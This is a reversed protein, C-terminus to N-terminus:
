SSPSCALPFLTGDIFGVCNPFCHRNQIRQSIERREDEDPWTIARDRLNRIALMARNQYLTGTGRGIRYIQWLDLNSAGTGETGLYKLLVMLQFAPPNQDPGKKTTKTFVPHQQIMGLITDFSQRTLRYKQRFESETLWPSVNDDHYVMDPDRVNSSSGLFDDGFTPKYNRYKQPRKFYRQSKVYELHMQVM